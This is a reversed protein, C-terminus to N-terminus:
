VPDPQLPPAPQEPRGRRYWGAPATAMWVGAVVVVGGLLQLPGLREGLILYSAGVSVVPIVNLYLSARGSGVLDLTRVYLWYGAASCFLALYVVELMAGASPVRWAAHEALAFPICGALGFLCQWFSVAVPGYRGAVRRTVLGYLVWGACAVMLFLYGARSTTTGQSRAAVLIVGATSLVAGLYVRPGLRVGHCVREALVALVPIFSIVLSAESASLLAIGHNEGFFYMTVGSLGGAALAPLDAAAVRLPEGAMRAFLQLVACAIVFRYVAMTMPPIEVVAMKICLFSLGWLLAVSIGFLAARRGRDMPRAM